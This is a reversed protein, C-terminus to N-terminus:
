WSYPIFLVLGPRKSVLVMFADNIMDFDHGESCFIYNFLVVLDKRIILWCKHYFTTLFGDPEPAKEGTMGKIVELVEEESFLTELM